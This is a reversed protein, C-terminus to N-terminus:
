YNLSTELLTLIINYDCGRIQTPIIFHYVHYFRHDEQTEHIIECLNQWSNDVIAKEGEHGDWISIFLSDFSSGYNSSSQYHRRNIMYPIKEEYNVLLKDTELEDNVNENNVICLGLAYFRAYM